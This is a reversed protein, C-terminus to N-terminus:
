FITHVFEQMPSKMAASNVIAWLHFYGLHENVSSHTLLIDYVCVM